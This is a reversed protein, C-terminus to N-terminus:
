KNWRAIHDIFIRIDTMLQDFDDMVSKRFEGLELSARDRSELIRDIKDKVDLPESESLDVKFTEPVNFDFSNRGAGRKALLVPCRQIIAERPIRDRGPFHGLDLYLDAANLAESVELRTMNRIPRFLCHPMMEIVIDTLERGKYPNYLVVPKDAQGVEEDIEKSDVYDRMMLSDIGLRERLFGQAYHSQSLAPFTAIEIKQNTFMMLTSRLRTRFVYVIGAVMRQIWAVPDERKVFGNSLWAPHVNGTRDELSRALPHSANDVSLWWIFVLKPIHLDFKRSIRPLKEPFIVIDESQFEVGEVIPANYKFYDAIPPRLKGLPVLMAEQNIRNLGDCLQHLSEVGGAQIGIPCFILFRTAM